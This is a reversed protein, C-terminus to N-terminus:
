EWNIEKKDLNLSRTDGIIACSFYKTKFLENAINKIDDRNVANLKEIVENISIFKNLYLYQKALNVMRNSSSELGLLINGKIHEKARELEPEDVYENKLKIIEESSLKLAKKANEKSTALYIITLGTDEYSNIMSTISYALGEEERIRQFLRSSMSGGLITNFLYYAYRKESSAPYGTTGICIHVQELQKKNIMNIFSNNKPTIRKLKKLNSKQFQGFYQNSIKYIKNHDLSGAVTIIM